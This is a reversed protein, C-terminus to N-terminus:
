SSVRQSLQVVKEAKWAKFTDNKIHERAQKMLELYFHLNHITAYSYISIENAKFLHRLYGRSFNKCTYCECESDLPQDLQEAFAAGKFNMVGKSTFVQGNRANRSPMVCDFMDVGRDILELLDVPTGVGMVYRPKDGPLTETCHDSMEYMLENPEGVSLGGIAYGPLDFDLLHKIAESRYEKYMGGQVIGFFAQDYGHLPPNEDLWKLAEGTWKQTLRLSHQVEKETAPYPTCEDFAMIIDAGIERQAKMVSQPTFWHKSGDLHSKFQVGEETIKRISQLSWVQFGGSDTLMPKKWNMFKHLGGAKSILETGPRLYLHYTNGLIIQANMDYLQDPNLSKVSAATGVPMFIPTEIDGHATEIKGLRAKTDVGDKLKTFNFNKM